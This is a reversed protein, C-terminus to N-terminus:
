GLYNLIEKVQKLEHWHMKVKELYPLIQKRLGPWENFVERIVRVDNKEDQIVDAVVLSRYYVMLKKFLVLVENKEKDNFCSCEYFSVFRETNPQIVQELIELFLDMREVIKRRIQRTLFDPKEISYIEFESNVAEYSPLEPYKKRLEDYEKQAM